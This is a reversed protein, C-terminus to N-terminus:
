ARGGQSGGNGEHKWREDLLGNVVRRADSYLRALESRDRLTKFEDELEEELDAKVLEFVEDRYTEERRRQLKVLMRAHTTNRGSSRAPRRPMAGIKSIASDVRAKTLRAFIEYWVGEIRNANARAINKERARAERKRDGKRPRTKKVGGGGGGKGVKARLAKSAPGYAVEAFGPAKRKLMRREGRLKKTKGMAISVTEAVNAVRVVVGEARNRDLGKPVAPLGFRKPITTDFEVPHSMCKEFRGTMLPRVFMGGLTEEWLTMAELFPLYTRMNGDCTFCIDFGIFELTPCYFVGSQVLSIEDSAHECGPFGGGFLEGFIWVHRVDDGYKARVLDFTKVALPEIRKILGSRFCGFFDKGSTRDLIRKRSAVQVEEGDTVFSFNAGHVKETVVYMDRKGGGRWTHKEQVGLGSRTDVAETTFTTTMKEYPFHGAGLTEAFFERGRKGYMRSAEQEEEGHVVVKKKKTTTTTTYTSISSSTGRKQGGEGEEEEEEEVEAIKSM